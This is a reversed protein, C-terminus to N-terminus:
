QVNRIGLIENLFYLASCVILSGFKFAHKKDQKIKKLNRSLESLLVGCLDYKKDEKLMQYTAFIAIGYVSNKMNSQYVKYETVMSAFRVEYEIIDSIRMSQNDYQSGTVTTVITNQVKRLGPIKDIENLCTVAQIVQKM